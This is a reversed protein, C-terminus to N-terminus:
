VKSGVKDLISKNCIQQWIKEEKCLVKFVVKKKNGVKSFNEQYLARLVHDVYTKEWDNHYKNAEKLCGTVQAITEMSLVM